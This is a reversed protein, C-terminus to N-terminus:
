RQCSGPPPMGSRRTHLSGPRCVLFPVLHSWCASSACCARRCWGPTVSGCGARQACGVGGGATTAATSSCGKCAAAGVQTLTVGMLGHAATALAGNYANDAFIFMPAFLLQVLIFLPYYGAVRAVSYAWAPAVRPSAAYKGLETATYAAVYGSLVFFPGVWVNVQLPALSTHQLPSHPSKSSPVSCTLLYQSKHQRSTATPTEHCSLDRLLRKGVYLWGSGKPVLPQSGQGGAVAPVQRRM